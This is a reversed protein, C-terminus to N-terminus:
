VLDVSLGQVFQVGCSSDMWRYWCIGPPTCPGALLVALDVVRGHHTSDLGLPHDTTDLTANAGLDLARGAMGSECNTRHRVRGVASRLNYQCLHDHSTSCCRELIIRREYGRRSENPRWHWRSRVRDQLPCDRPHM